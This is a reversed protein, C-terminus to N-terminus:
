RSTLSSCPLASLVRIVAPLEDVGTQGLDLEVGNPLRVHLRLLLPLTAPAMVAAQLAAPQAQPAQIQLPVFAASAGQRQTASLTPAAPAAQHQEIWRRLLNANVGCQLAVRSVSVGPRLCAHVVEAKAQADYKCRGDRKRGVVLRGVLETSIETM